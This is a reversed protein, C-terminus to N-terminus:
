PAKPPGTVGLDVVWKWRGDPQRRWISVYNGTLPPKGVNPGAIATWAFYGWTYALDGSAAVEGGEPEWAAAAIEPVPFVEAIAAVGKVPGIGQRFMIADPAAFETFAARAGRTKAAAAFARDAALVEDITAAHLAPSLLMLLLLLRMRM